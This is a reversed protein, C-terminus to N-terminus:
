AVKSQGRGVGRAQQDIVDLWMKCAVPMAQLIDSLEICANSSMRQHQGEAVQLIGEQLTAMMENLARSAELTIWTGRDHKM